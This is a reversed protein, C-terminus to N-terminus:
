LFRMCVLNTAVVYLKSGVQSGTTDRALRSICHYNTVIYGRTDWIVGSGTGEAVDEGNVNKFNFISVISPAACSVVAQTIYKM